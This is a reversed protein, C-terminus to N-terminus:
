VHGVLNEYDELTEVGGIAEEIKSSIASPSTTRANGGAPQISRRTAAEKPAPKAPKSSTQAMPIGLERAAMKALIFPKDPSDYLPDGMEKMREDLAIIRKTMASEPNTTDPYFRVARAESESFEKEYAQRAMSDRENEYRDAEKQLSSRQDLLSLMQDDLDAFKDFELDQAAQKRQERLEALQTEIDKLKAAPTPEANGDGEQNGNATSVGLISKAKTICEELSWDPHRKRLSLAEAEVDDKARIRFRNSQSATEEEETTAADGNEGEETSSDEEADSQEEEAEEESEAPEESEENDAPEEAPTEGQADEEVIEAYEEADVSDIFQDYKALENTAGNNPDSSSDLPDEVTTDVTSDAQAQHDDNPM